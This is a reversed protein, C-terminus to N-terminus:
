KKGITHRLIILVISDVIFVGLFVFAIVIPFVDKGIWMVLLLISPILTGFGVIHCVKKENYKVKKAASLTNYGAILGSGHGSILIAAIILLLFSVMPLIWDPGHMYDSIVM